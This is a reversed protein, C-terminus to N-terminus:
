LTTAVMFSSETTSHFGNLRGVVASITTAPSGSMFFCYAEKLGSNQSQVRGAVDDGAFAPSAIRTLEYPLNLRGPRQPKRCLAPGGRAGM